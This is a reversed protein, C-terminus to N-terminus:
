KFKKILEIIDSLIWGTKKSLKVQCKEFWYSETKLGFYEDQKDKPLSNFWDM